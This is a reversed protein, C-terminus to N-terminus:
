RLASISFGKTEKSSGERYKYKLFSSLMMVIVFFRISSLKLTKLGDQM